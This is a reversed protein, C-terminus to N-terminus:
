FFWNVIDNKTVYIMLSLLLVMGIVHLVVTLKENAPRGTLGEYALFVMHGGDLVPIPLFNLVALNASLMTLFLLFAPLDEGAILYASGLITIPGGLNSADVQQSALKQLFRVVTTLSFWTRDLAYSAQEGVSGIERERLIPMYIFGRGVLYSDDIAAPELTKTLTEEGRQITLKVSNGDLLRAVEATFAPWVPKAEGFKIKSGASAKKKKPDMTSVVASAISDGPMLGAAEAPSGAVVSVVTPEITYAVGLAPASMPASGSPAEEWTVPRPTVEIAEPQDGDASDARVVTLTVPGTTSALLKPLTLPDLSPEGDPAAGIPKGDIATIKDGAELGAAEAPSGQQVAVIPGMTMVLGLRKAPTPAVTVTLTEAAVSNTESAPQGGRQVTVEIAKDALSVLQATLERHTTVPQGNIATIRDSPEFPPEAVAAATGPFAAKHKNLTTENSTAMGIMAMSGTKKPYLRLSEVTDSGRRKVGFDVGAELDALSVDRKLHDFGPETRDGIRVIEDGSELGAQWAPSGPTTTGVVCPQYEVGIGFALFAFVAAFIVNMVVGASIILMRQWVAKAQYSRGDVWRTSGDPNKKAVAYDSDETVTSAEIQEATRGPDDDQGFMKVYGGLPFVGIGYETEGLKRSLKLGWFDFGIMFKECKVGCMRAVAFHGLEHVFIVFGLGAAATLAALVVGLGDMLSTSAILCLGM